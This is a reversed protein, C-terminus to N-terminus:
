LHRECLIYFIFTTGYISLKGGDIATRNDPTRDTGGYFARHSIPSTSSRRHFPKVTVSSSSGEEVLNSSESTSSWELAAVDLEAKKESAEICYRVCMIIFAALILFSSVMISSQIVPPLGSMPMWLDTISHSAGGAGDTSNTSLIRSEEVHWNLTGAPFALLLFSLCSGILLFITVGCVISMQINVNQMNKDAMAGRSNYAM